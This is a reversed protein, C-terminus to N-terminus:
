GRRVEAQALLEARRRREAQHYRRQLAAADQWRKGLVAANYRQRLEALENTTGAFQTKRPSLKEHIMYNVNLAGRAKDNGGRSNAARPATNKQRSM